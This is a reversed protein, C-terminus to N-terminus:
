DESVELVFRLLDEGGLRVRDKAFYLSIDHPKSSNDLWVQWTCANRQAMVSRFEHSRM